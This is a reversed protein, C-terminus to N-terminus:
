IERVDMIEAEEVEQVAAVVEDRPVDRVKLVMDWFGPQKPAPVSGTAYLGWGRSWFTNM